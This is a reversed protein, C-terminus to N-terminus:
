WEFCFFAGQHVELEIVWFHPTLNYTLYWLTSLGLLTSFLFWLNSITKNRLIYCFPNLCASIRCVDTCSGLKPPRVHPFTRLCPCILFPIPTSSLLPSWTQLCIFLFFFLSEWGSVTHAHSTVETMDLEKDSQPSYGALSRHGPIRWALISSHTATGEELPDEWGLSQVEMEWTEQM